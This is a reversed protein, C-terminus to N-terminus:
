GPHTESRMRRPYYDGVRWHSTMDTYRRTFRQGKAVDDYCFTIMFAGAAKEALLAPETEDPIGVITADEVGTHWALVHTVNADEGGVARAFERVDNMVALLTNLQTTM